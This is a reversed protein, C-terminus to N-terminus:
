EHKSRIFEVMQMKTNNGRGYVSHFQNHCSKCLCMGNEPDARLEPYATYSYLHHSVLGESSNCIECKSQARQKVVRKWTNYNYTERDRKAKITTRDLRYIPNNFGTRRKLEVRYCGCSVTVKGNWQASTVQIVNGCDCRASWRSEKHKGPGVYAEIVLRGNREGVRNKLKSRLRNCGCSTTHGSTLNGAAVRVEKGCECRCFWHIKAKVSAPDISKVTLKGFVQGTLDRFNSATRHQFCGCSKIGGRTLLRGQAAIENGCLCQCWWMSHNNETPLQYMVQLNSFVQGTLNLPKSM